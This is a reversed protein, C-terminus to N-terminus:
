SRPRGILTGLFLGSLFAMGLAEAPRDQTFDEAWEVARDLAERAGELWGSLNWGGPGPEPPDFRKLHRGEM